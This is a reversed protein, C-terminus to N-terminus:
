CCPLSLKLLLKQIPHDPVLQSKLLTCLISSLDLILYSFGVFLLFEATHLFAKCFCARTEGTAADQNTFKIPAGLTQPSSSIGRLCAPLSYKIIYWLAQPPKPLVQFVPFTRPAPCISSPSKYWLHVKSHATLPWPVWSLLSVCGVSGVGLSLSLFFIKGCRFAQLLLINFCICHNTFLGFWYSTDLVKEEKRVFAKEIGWHNIKESSFVMCNFNLLCLHVNFFAHVAFSKLLTELWGM